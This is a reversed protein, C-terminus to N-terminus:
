RAPRNRTREIFASVNAHLVQLDPEHAVVRHGSTDFHMEINNELAAQIPLQRLEHVAALTLGTGLLCASLLWRVKFDM